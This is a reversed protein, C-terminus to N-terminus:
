ASRQPDQGAPGVEGGADDSAASGADGAPPLPEASRQGTASDALWEDWSQNWVTIGNGLDQERGTGTVEVIDGVRSLDYLWAANSTSMGVCGHSVNAFGQSGQSWPAAHVFEGSTTVRMAYEVDLRYYEPDGVAIGTSLADMVRMREKSMIVKTGSRTEFGAKGTTIPVKRLVEGDRIVTATHTKANVKTVMAPGFRFAETSDQKGYTGPKSQVGRLNLDLVVDTSGPWYDQPRFTVTRDDQWSWAGVVPNSARLVLAQEVAARDVIKRTFRVTIPMGVGVTSDAAPSVSAVDFYRDPDVTRIEQETAEIMGRSDVAHASIRYTAGYDLAGGSARWSRGDATIAGPVDGAPGTVTVSLLRGDRVDVGLPAGPDVPEASALPAFTASSTPAPDVTQLTLAPACGSIAIAATVAAMLLRAGSIRM